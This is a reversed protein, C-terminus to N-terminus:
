RRNAIGSPHKQHPAVPLRHHPRRGGAAGGAGAGPPLANGRRGVGGPPRHGGGPRPPRRHVQRLPQRGRDGRPGHHPQRSLARGADRAPGEDARLHDRPHRLPRHEAGGSLARRPRRRLGARGAERAPRPGHDHPQRPDKGPATRRRALARGEAGPRRQEVTRRRGHRGRPPLRAAHHLRPRRRAVQLDAGHHSRPASQPRSHPQRGSHDRVHRRPQGPGDQAM